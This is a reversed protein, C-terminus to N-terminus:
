KLALPVVTRLWLPQCAVSDILVLDFGFHTTMVWSGVYVVILIVTRTMVATSMTTVVTADHCMTSKSVIEELAVKMMTCYGFYLKGIHVLLFDNCHLLFEGASSFFIYSM